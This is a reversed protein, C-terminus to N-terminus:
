VHVSLFISPGSLTRVESRTRTRASHLAANECPIELATAEGLLGHTKTAAYCGHTDFFDFCSLHVRGLQQVDAM